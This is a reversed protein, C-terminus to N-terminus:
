NVKRGQQRGIFLYILAGVVNLFVIVLVWMLKETSDRFERTLCDILAWIWIVLFATGILGWCCFTGLFLRPTLFPEPLQALMLVMVLLLPM